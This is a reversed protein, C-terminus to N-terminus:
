FVTENLLVCEKRLINLSLLQPSMKLGNQTTNIPIRINRSGDHLQNLSSLKMLCMIFDM